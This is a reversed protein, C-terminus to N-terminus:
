HRRSVYRTGLLIDWLPTTVGFNTGPHRHHIHHARSWRMLLRQQFRRSHMLSHSAGYLCYGAAMSGAVLFAVPHSLCATLTATIAFVAIAPLFFPLADYGEPTEHHKRHGQELARLTGHFLWRHFSYEVLSFILLGAAMAFVAVLWSRTNSQLGWLLLGSAVLLDLAAGAYNNLRTASMRTFISVLSRHRPNPLHVRMSQAYMRVASESNFFDDATPALNPKGGEFLIPVLRISDTM